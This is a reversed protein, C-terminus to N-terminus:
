QTAQNIKWSDLEKKFLRINRTKGKEISKMSAKARKVMDDATTTFIDDYKGEESEVMSYILRLFREDAQEIFNHIKQKIQITDM